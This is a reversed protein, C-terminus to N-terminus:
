GLHDIGSRRSRRKAVSLPSESIHWVVRWAEVIVRYAVCAFINWGMDSVGDDNIWVCVYCFCLM